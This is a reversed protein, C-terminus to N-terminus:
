FELDDFQMEKPRFSSASRVNGIKLGFKRAGDRMHDVPIKLYHHYYDICKAIFTPGHPDEGKFIADVTVLHALEHLLTVPTRGWYAIDITWTDINAKCPLRDVSMFNVVPVKIGERLAASRILDVCDDKSLYAVARPEVYQAEWAYCARAIDNVLQEM